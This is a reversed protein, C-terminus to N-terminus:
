REALALRAALCLFVGGAARNLLIQARPSRRLWDGLYGAAWAVAAFVVFACLIFVVGFLFVQATVSGRAPNAFQPLFALFFIAVKPNTLNMIVGTSYLRSLPRRPANTTGIEVAGACFAKWALFVLYGAGALKLITFALASTQFVAAM